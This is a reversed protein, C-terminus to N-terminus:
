KCETNIKTSPTYKDKYLLAVVGWTCLWNQRFSDCQWRPVLDGITLPSQPRTARHGSLPGTSLSPALLVFDFCLVLEFELGLLSGLCTQQATSAKGKAHSTDHM